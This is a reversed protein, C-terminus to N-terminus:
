KLINLFRLMPEPVPDYLGNQSFFLYYHQLDTVCLIAVSVGLFIAVYRRPLLTSLATLQSFALWRLPMDWITAYRLNLGYKVNTMVLYSLLIFLAFYSNRKEDLRVQFFAAVALLTVGPSMTLLDLIYRFWPGDGTKIVYEIAYSKEVNLKLVGILNAIGGCAVALGIVGLAPGVVTVALLARTVTGFCAWRNFALIGALAIFVFAANEKTMVMLALSLGYATLWVWQRPARLNEWLLWLTLLAVFAFVGDIYIRQGMQIQLPACSMLATVGLSAGLGSMRWVFIATVALALVTCLCAVFHLAILPGVGTIKQLIYAGAIFTVRTPPIVAAPMDKQAAIYSQAVKPYTTLGAPKLMMLYIRYYNEDFGLQLMKTSPTVRLYAGCAFILLLPALLLNRTQRETM